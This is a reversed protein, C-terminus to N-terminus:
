GNNQIFLQNNTFNSAASPTFPSPTIGTSASVWHNGYQDAAEVVHHPGNAATWGYTQSWENSGGTEVASALRNAKDYGFTQMLNLSPTVIGATQVNRNNNSCYQLAQNQCYRYNLTLPTSSGTTITVSTPQARITTLGQDFVVTETAVPASSSGYQIQAVADSSAYSVSRAYTTAGSSVSNPRNQADYTTAVFGPAHDLLKKDVGLVFQKRRHRGHPCELPHCVIKDGM